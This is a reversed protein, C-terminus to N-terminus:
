SGWSKLRPLIDSKELEEEYDVSKLENKAYGLLSQAAYKVFDKNYEHEGNLVSALLHSVQNDFENDFVVCKITKEIEFGRYLFHELCEIAKDCEYIGDDSQYGQLTGKAKKIIQLARDLNTKTYEDWEVPKQEKQEIVPCHKFKMRLIDLKAREQPSLSTNTTIAKNFLAVDEETPNWCPKQEKQEDSYPFDDIFDRLTEEKQEKQKEQQNMAFDYPNGEIAPYGCYIFKGGLYYYMGEKNVVPEKQKELYALVAKKGVGGYFEFSENPCNRIFDYIWKRAKEDDSEALEPFVSKKLTDLQEKTHCPAIWQRMVELAEDYARAKEEITM